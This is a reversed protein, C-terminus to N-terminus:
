PLSPVGASASPSPVLILRGVAVPGDSQLVVVQDPGVSAPLPVVVRQGGAVSMTTVTTLVGAAGALLRV